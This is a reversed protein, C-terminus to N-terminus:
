ASVRVVHSPRDSRIHLLPTGSAAPFEHVCFKKNKAVIALIDDETNYYFEPLKLIEGVEM